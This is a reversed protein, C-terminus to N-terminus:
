KFTQPSFLKGAAGSPSSSTVESCMELSHGFLRFLDGFGVKFNIAFGSVPHIIEDSHVFVALEIIHISAFDVNVSM